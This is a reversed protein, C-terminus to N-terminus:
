RDFVHSVDIQAERPDVELEDSHITPADFAYKDAYYRALDTTSTNLPKDGDIADVESLM